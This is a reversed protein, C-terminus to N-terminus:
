SDSESKGLKSTKCSGYVVRFWYDLTYWLRAPFRHTPNKAKVNLYDDIPNISKANERM